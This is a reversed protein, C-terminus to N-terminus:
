HAQTGEAHNLRDGAAPGSAPTPHQPVAVGRPLIAHRAIMNRGNGRLTSTRGAALPGAEIARTPVRIAGAADLGSDPAHRLTAPMASVPRATRAFHTAVLGTFILGVILISAAIQGRFWPRFWPGSRSSPGRLEDSFRITRLRADVRDKLGEPAEVKGLLRLAGEIYAEAAASGASPLHAFGNSNTSPHNM